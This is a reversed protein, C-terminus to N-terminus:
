SHAIESSHIAALVAIENFVTDARNENADALTSRKITSTGLHYLHAAHSNFATQLPRLGATGSLQAYLMAILQDWHKFRKCYKDANHKKVVQNFASRPLGKMLEQFTTIRFM